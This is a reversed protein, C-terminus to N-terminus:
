LCHKGQNLSHDLFFLGFLMKFSYILQILLNKRQHGLHITEDM